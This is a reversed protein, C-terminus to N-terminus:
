KKVAASMLHLPVIIILGVVGFLKGAKFNLGLGLMAAKKMKM